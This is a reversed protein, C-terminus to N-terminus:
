NGRIESFEESSLGSLRMIVAFIRDLPYASRKGMDEVHEKKRYNFLRKGEGDCLCMCAVTARVKAKAFGKKEAESILGDFYDRQSGTMGRVYVHGKWEPIFLKEVMVDEVVRIDQASLVPYENESEEEEVEVEGDVYQDDSM